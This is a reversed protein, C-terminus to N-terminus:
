PLAYQKHWNFLQTMRKTGNSIEKDKIKVELPGAIHMITCISYLLSNALSLESIIFVRQNQLCPIKKLSIQAGGDRFHLCFPNEKM